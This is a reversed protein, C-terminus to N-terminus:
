DAKTGGVYYFGKPVKVGEVKVEEDENERNMYKDMFDVAKNMEDQEDKAAIEYRDVANEERTYIRNSGKTLSIAVSALILLEIITVVLAILTIGKIESKVKKM